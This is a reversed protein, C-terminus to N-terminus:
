YDPERLLVQQELLLMLLLLTGYMAAATAADSWAAAGLLLWWLCYKAPVPWGALSHCPPPHRSTTTTTPCADCTSIETRNGLDASIFPMSIWIYRSGAPEAMGWGLNSDEPRGTSIDGYGDNSAPGSRM